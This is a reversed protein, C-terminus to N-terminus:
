RLRRAGFYHGGWYADGTAHEMVGANTASVVTRAGTAIGVHTAGPGATSFFVLDGPRIDGRKVPRGLAAQGESTHPLAV